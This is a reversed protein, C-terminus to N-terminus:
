NLGQQALLSGNALVDRFCNCIKEVVSEKAKMRLGSLSMSRRNSTSTLKSPCSILRLEFDPISQNPKKGLTLMRSKGETQVIRFKRITREAQIEGDQFLNKLHENITPVTVQFIEAMLKQTLWISEGAFRCEIRTSGDETQYLLFEGEPPVESPLTDDTM